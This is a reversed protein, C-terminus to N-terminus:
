VVSRTSKFAPKWVLKNATERRQVGQLCIIDVYKSKHIVHTIKEM